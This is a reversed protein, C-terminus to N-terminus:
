HVRAVSLQAGLSQGPDYCGVAANLFPAPAHRSMDANLTFRVNRLAITMDAKGEIASM